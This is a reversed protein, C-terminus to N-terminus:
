DILREDKAKAFASTRNQVHLKALISAVYKKITFVSLELEESIQRDTLSLLSLVKKEAETLRYDEKSVVPPTTAGLIQNVEKIFDSSNFDKLLTGDVGKLRAERLLNAYATVMLVKTKPFNERIWAFLEFGALEDAKWAADLVVLHVPIGKGKIQTLEEKVLTKTDADKGGIVKIDKVRNLINILGERTAQFDDAIYINFM